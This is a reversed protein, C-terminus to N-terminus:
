SSPLAAAMSFQEIESAPVPRGFYFGQGLPCGNEVLFQWQDRTEIGEALPTMGLSLALQIVAKVMSCADQNYPLDRVFSRDIKLVEVRLDKLRSLSSYGTGFDDIAFRVGRQRLIDMAHQTRDPDTMAATETVEVVMRETDVISGDLKAMLNEVFDPHWLQRASVNFSVDLEIGRGRWARHQRLLDEMVWDGITNILGMEEALAIFDGAEVLGRQPHNWRLLAEVGVMRGEGLDIIPQYHLVWQREEAARRLGTALSLQSGPDALHAAFLAYSGPAAKKCRYMASDAHMLLSRGDAADLPYVSIGVSASVFFEVGSLQFPPRLVEAIRGAVTEAVMVTAASGHTPEQAPADIDSILVMFEDGGLRAVVDEERCVARLREAVQRLLEDGSAHGLSDNVLKMNDLDVYLVALGIERREARALALSLLEEFMARNPLGTLKDHFALFAVEDEFRKQYTIDRIFGTFLPGGPTDIRTITLEAPFETGNSRMANMKVRKGLRRGGDAPVARALSARYRERVSPPVLLEAVERGIVEERSYDFTREAAPNFEVIRGLADTTVIADLAGDLIATKRAESRRIAEEAQHRELYVGVQRGIATLLRVLDDHPADPSRGFFAMGGFVQAGSRIPVSLTRHLGSREALQRPSEGDVDGRDPPDLSPNHWSWELRDDSLERAAWVTGLDWGARRCVTELIDQIAEAPTSADAMISTVAQHILLLRRLLSESSASHPTRRRARRMELVGLPRKLPSPM